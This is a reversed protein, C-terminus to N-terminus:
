ELYYITSKEQKPRNHNRRIKKFYTHYSKKKGAKLLKTENQLASYSQRLLM